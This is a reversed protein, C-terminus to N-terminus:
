CNSTMYNKCFADQFVLKEFRLTVPLVKECTLVKLSTVKPEKFTGKWLSTLPEALIEKLARISKLKPHMTETQNEQSSM